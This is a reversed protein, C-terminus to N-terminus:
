PVEYKKSELQGVSVLYMFPFLYFPGYQQLVESAFSHSNPLFLLLPSLGTM